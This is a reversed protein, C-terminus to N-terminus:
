PSALAQVVDANEALPMQAADQGRVEPVIVPRARMEREVLICGVSPWALRWSVARDEWNRLNVAQM